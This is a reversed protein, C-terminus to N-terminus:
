FSSIEELKNTTQGKNCKHKAKIYLKRQITRIVEPTVLM